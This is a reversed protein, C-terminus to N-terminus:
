CWFLWYLFVSLCIRRKICDIARSSYEYVNGILRLMAVLAAMPHNTIVVLLDCSSLIMIMFYCLEKRLLVYRWFSVIVLSNLGLGSCFFLVNLAFIFILNIFYIFQMKRNRFQGGRLLSYGQVIHAITVM